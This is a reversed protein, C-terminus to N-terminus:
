SQDIYWYAGSSVKSRGFPRINRYCASVFTQNRIVLWPLFTTILTPPWSASHLSKVLLISFKEAKRICAWISILLSTSVSILSRFILLSFNGITSNRYDLTLVCLIFVMLLSVRVMPLPLQWLLAYLIIYVLFLSLLFKLVLILKFCYALSPASVWLFPMTQVLCTSVLSQQLLHHNLHRTKWRHRKMM